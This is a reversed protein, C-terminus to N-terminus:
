PRLVEKVEAHKEEISIRAERADKIDCETRGTLEREM